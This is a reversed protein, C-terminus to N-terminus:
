DKVEDTRSLLQASKRAILLFYGPRAQGIVKKLEPLAVAEGKDQAARM